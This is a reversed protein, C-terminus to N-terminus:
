INWSDVECIILALQDEKYQEFLEKDLSRIIFERASEETESTIFGSKIPEKGEEYKSVL